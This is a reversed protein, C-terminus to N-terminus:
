SCKCTSRAPPLRQPGLPSLIPESVTSTTRTLGPTSHAFLFDLLSSFSKHNQSFLFIWRMNVYKFLVPGFTLIESGSLKCEISQNSNSPLLLVPIFLRSASGLVFAQPKRAPLSMATFAKVKFLEVGTPRTQVVFYTVANSRCYIIGIEKQLTSIM